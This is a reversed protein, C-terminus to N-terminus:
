LDCDLPVDEWSGGVCALNVNGACAGYDCAQSPQSCATGIRPRVSPCGPPTVVSGADGCGETAPPQSVSWQGHSGTMLTNCRVDEHHGFECSYACPCSAGVEPMTVPCERMAAADTSEADASASATAHEELEDKPAGADSSSEVTVGGCAFSTVASLLLALAPLRRLDM